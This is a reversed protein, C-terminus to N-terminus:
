GLNEKKSIKFTAHLTSTQGESFYKISIESIKLFESWWLGKQDSVSDVLMKKKKVNVRLEFGIVKKGNTIIM